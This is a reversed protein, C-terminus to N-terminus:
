KAVTISACTAFIDATKSAGGKFLHNAAKDIQPQNFESEGHNSVWHNVFVGVQDREIIDLRATKKCQGHEYLHEESCHKMAAELTEHYSRRFSEDEDAEQIELQFPLNLRKFISTNVTVTSSQSGLYGYTCCIIFESASKRTANISSTRGGALEQTISSKVDDCTLDDLTWNVNIGDGEIEVFGESTLGNSSSMELKVVIKQHM